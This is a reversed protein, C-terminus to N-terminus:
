SILKPSDYAGWKDCNEGELFVTYIFITKILNIFDWSVHLHHILVGILLIRSSLVKKNYMDYSVPYMPCALKLSLVIIAEPM